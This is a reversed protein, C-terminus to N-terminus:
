TVRKKSMVIFPRLHSVKLELTPLSLYVKELYEISIKEKKKKICKGCKGSKHSPVFNESMKKIAHNKEDEQLIIKKIVKKRLICLYDELDKM